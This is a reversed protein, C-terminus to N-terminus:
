NGGPSTLQHIGHNVSKFIQRHRKNRRRQKVLQKRDPNRLRFLLLLDDFSCLPLYAFPFPGLLAAPEPFSFALAPVAEFEPHSKTAQNLPLVSLADEAKTFLNPRRDPCTFSRISFMKWFSSIYLLHRRLHGAHHVLRACHMVASGLEHQPRRQCPRNGYRRRYGGAFQFGSGAAFRASRPFASVTELGQSAFIFLVISQSIVVIWAAVPTMVMIKKGITRM